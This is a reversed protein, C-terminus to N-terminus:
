REWAIIGVQHQGFKKVQVSIAGAFVRSAVGASDKAPGDSSTPLTDVVACGQPADRRERRPPSTLGNADHRPKFRSFTGVLFCNV